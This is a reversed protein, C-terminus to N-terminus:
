AYSRKGFIDTGIRIWTAGEEIAIEFDDSMGMSLGDIPFNWEDSCRTKLDALMRFYGRTKEEDPSIPPITMLGVVDVHSCGAAVELIGPLDDPKMGFKSAEGAVNVQLCVPMVKGLDACAAEVAELLRVSDVSHIMDFMQVALKVKNTQLHGVLHWILSDSCMPIKQKAEQVRNEGFVLQGASVAEQVAEPPHKKSIAVLTVDAYDRGAKECAALM